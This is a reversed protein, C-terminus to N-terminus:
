MGDAKESITDEILAKTVPDLRSLRHDRSLQTAMYKRIDADVSQTEISMPHARLLTVISERIDPLERSTMLVRLHPATHSLRVLCEMMYHRMDGDEPCEDLADILLFVKDYTEVCAVLIKELEDQGPKDQNPKEYAQQLISLAPERWGLQAVWSLLADEYRQKRDDSFSLYFVAYAVNVASECHAKVDEIATSCLVTKGCGAKGYVWLHQLSGSKWDRYEKCNLLWTGTQHEHRERASKHNTWPDSPLLWAVIDRFRKAQQAARERAQQAQQEALNEDYQVLRLLRKRARDYGEGYVIADAVDFIGFLAYSMDETRSTKRGEMWKLREDVSLGQSANYNYLIQEPIGTRAAIDKELGPGVSSRSYTYHSAGKNGIVQWTRTVFIVTRPALLEQLTWGREFWESKQFSQEDRAEDVDALYALCVGANRYWKFMLNIAESLEAASEKNICCTDIWLWQVGSVYDKIYKAFDMVKQYGDKSKNREEKVEQYTVEEKQWRHSAIAYIPREEDSFHTFKLTDVNLLRM